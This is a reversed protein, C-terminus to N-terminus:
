SEIIKLEEFPVGFVLRDEDHRGNSDKGLFVVKCTTCSGDKNEEYAYITGKQKTPTYLYHADPPYQSIKEQVKAPRTAVWDLFDQEQKNFNKLKAKQLSVM